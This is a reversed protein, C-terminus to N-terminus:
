VIEQGCYSMALRHYHKASVKIKEIEDHSLSRIVKAPRGFVLSGAPIKTGETVLSGAGILCDDGIEVLDMVTSGMGILVRNGIVCGHLTCQHGVTVDDGIILPAKLYSVHCMCLDQVNTRKGIKIFNVDGRVVSNFWISSEDGIEVEGIVISGTALFTAHGFKPENLHHGLIQGHHFVTNISM